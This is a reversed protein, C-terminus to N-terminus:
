IWGIPFGGDLIVSKCNLLKGKQLYTLTRNRRFRLWHYRVLSSRWFSVTASRSPLVTDAASFGMLIRDRVGFWWKGWNLVLTSSFCVEFVQWRPLISGPACVQDGRWEPGEQSYVGAQGRQGIHVLIWTLENSENIRWPRENTASAQVYWLICESIFFDFTLLHAFTLIFHFSVQLDTDTTDSHLTTTNYRTRLEHLFKKRVLEPPESANMTM